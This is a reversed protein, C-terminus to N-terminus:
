SRPRIVDSAIYTQKIRKQWEELAEEVDLDQTVILPTAAATEYLVLPGCISALRKLIQVMTEEQCSSGWFHFQFLGDEKVSGLIRAYRSSGLTGVTLEWINGSFNDKTVPLGDFNEMVGLMEELTPCRSELNSPNYGRERLWSHAESVIAVVGWEVSM